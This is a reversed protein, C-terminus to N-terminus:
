VRSLGSSMNKKASKRLGLFTAFPVRCDLAFRSDRELPTSAPVRRRGPDEESQHRNSVSSPRGNQHFRRVCVDCHCAGTCSPPPPPPPLLFLVLVLVPVFVLVHIIALRQNVAECVSGDSGSAVTDEVHGSSAVSAPLARESVAFMLESLPM